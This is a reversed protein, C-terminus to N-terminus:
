FGRFPDYEEEGATRSGGYWDDRGGGFGKNGFHNTRNRSRSRSRRRVVGGRRHEMVGISSLERSRRKSAGVIGVGDAEDLYDGFQSGHPRIFAEMRVTGVADFFNGIVAAPRGSADSTRISSRGSAGYGAVSGSQQSQYIESSDNTGVSLGATSPVQKHGGWGNVTGNANSHSPPPRSGGSSTSLTASAPPPPGRESFGRFSLPPPIRSGTNSRKRGHSIPYGRETFRPVIPPSAADPTNFYSNLEGNNHGQESNTGARSTDTYASEGGFQSPPGSRPGLQSNISPYGSNKNKAVRISDRIPNKRLRADQRPIEFEPMQKPPQSVVTIDPIAQSSHALFSLATLWVYHRESTPATFKLARAPTLILISRNFLPSSGKPAANDDKVDLVSQITVTRWNAAM